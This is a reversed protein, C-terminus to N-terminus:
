DDTGAPFSFGWRSQTFGHVGVAAELRSISFRPRLKKQDHDCHQAQGNPSDRTTLMVRDAWARGQNIPLTM